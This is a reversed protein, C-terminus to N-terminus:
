PGALVQDKCQKLTGALRPDNSKLSAPVPKGDLKLLDPKYDFTDVQSPGGSQYLWIVHRAKAPFHPPKPALPDAARDPAVPAAAAEDALLGALALAGFGGATTALIDRRSLTMLM